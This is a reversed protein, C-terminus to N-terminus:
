KQEQPAARECSSLASPLSTELRKFAAEHDEFERKAVDYADQADKVVAMRMWMFGCASRIETADKLVQVLEPQSLSSRVLAELRHILAFTLRSWGPYDRGGMMEAENRAQEILLETSRGDYTVHADQEIAAIARRAAGPISGDSV